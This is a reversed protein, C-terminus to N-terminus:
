LYVLRIKLSLSSEIVRLAAAGFQYPIASFLLSAQLILFMFFLHKMRTLGLPCVRSWETWEVHVSQANWCSEFISQQPPYSNSNGRHLLLMRRGGSAPVLPVPSGTCSRDWTASRARQGRPLPWTGKTEERGVCVQIYNINSLEEM